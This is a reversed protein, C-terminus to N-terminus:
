SDIRLDESSQGQNSLIQEHREKRKDAAVKELNLDTLIYMAEGLIVRESANVRIGQAGNDLLESYYERIKELLTSRKDEQPPELCPTSTGELAQICTTIACIEDLIPSENIDFQMDLIRKLQQYYEKLYKLIYFKTM